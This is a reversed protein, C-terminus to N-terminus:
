GPGHAIQAMVRRDFHLVGSVDRGVICPGLGGGNMDPKKVCASNQGTLEARLSPMRAKRKLRHTQRATTKWSSKESPHYKVQDPRLREGPALSRRTIRHRHRLTSPLRRGAGGHGRCSVLGRGVFLPVARSARRHATAPAPSRRKTPPRGQPRTQRGGPAHAPRMVVGFSSPGSWVTRAKAPTLLSDCSM